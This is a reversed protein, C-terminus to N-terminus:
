HYFTSFLVTVCCAHRTCNTLICLVCVSLFKFFFISFSMLVATFEAKLLVYLAQKCACGSYRCCLVIKKYKRLVVM